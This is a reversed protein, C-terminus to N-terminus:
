KFLSILLILKFWFPPTSYGGIYNHYKRLVNEVNEGINGIFMKYHMLSNGVIGM